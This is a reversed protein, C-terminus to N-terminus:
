KANGHVQFYCETCLTSLFERSDPPIIPSSVPIQEDMWEFNWDIQDLIENLIADELWITVLDGNKMEMDLLKTANSHEEQGNLINSTEDNDAPVLNQWEIQARVTLQHDDADISNM